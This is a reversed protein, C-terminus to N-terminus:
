EGAPAPAESMDVDFNVERRECIKCTELWSTWKDMTAQSITHEIKCAEEDALSPEVGLIDTLFSSLTHHRELIRKGYETGKNTLTIMGYREQEIYGWERLNKTARAISAKSFGLDDAIDVNRCSGGHQQCQDYISEIYDEYSPTLHEMLESM